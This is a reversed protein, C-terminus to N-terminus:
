LGSTLPGRRHTRTRSLQIPLVNCPMHFRTHPATGIMSCSHTCIDGCDGYYACATQHTATCVLLRVVLMVHDTNPVDCDVRLVIIRAPMMTRTPAVCPIVSRSRAIHLVCISIVIGHHGRQTMPPNISTCPFNHM